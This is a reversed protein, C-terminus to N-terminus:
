SFLRIGAVGAAGCEIVDGFHDRGVGGLALVPVGSAAQVAERLSRLGVGNRVLDSGVRKEFVPGFLICDVKAQVAGEVEAVSHCSVSVLAAVEMGAAAFVRRVQDPALAEQEGTLHVGHAGSAVAVDARGNILVKTSSGQALQVVQEALALLEAGNLHKERIQILEIGDVIWGEIRQLQARWAHQRDGGYSRLNTIACRIVRATYEGM